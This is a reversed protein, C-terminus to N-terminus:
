LLLLPSRERLGIVKWIRTTVLWTWIRRLHLVKATLQWLCLPHHQNTAPVHLLPSCAALSMRPPLFQYASNGMLQAELGQVCMEKDKQVENGFSLSLSANHLVKESNNFIELAGICPILDLRLFRMLGLGQAAARLPHGPLEDNSVWDKELYAWQSPM